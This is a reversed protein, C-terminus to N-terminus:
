AGGGFYGNRTAALEQLAVHANVGEDTAVKSWGDPGLEWALTDDAFEIRLVEDLHSALDPDRVPVVCEV